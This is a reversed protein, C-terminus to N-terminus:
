ADKREYFGIKLTSEQGFRRRSSDVELSYGPMEM